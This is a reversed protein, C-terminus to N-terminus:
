VKYGFKAANAELSKVTQCQSVFQSFKNFADSYTKKSFDFTRKIVAADYKNIMAKRDVVQLIVNGSTFALNKTENVGLENMAALYTKTDNDFSTSREYQATTL